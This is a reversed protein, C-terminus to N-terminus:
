VNTERQKGPTRGAGYAVVLLAPVLLCFFWVAQNLTYATVLHQSVLSRRTLGDVINAEIEREQGAHWPYRSAAYLGGFYTKLIQHERFAFTYRWRARGPFLANQAMDLNADRSRIHVRAEHVFPDRSAPYAKIFERFGEAGPYRDIIRAGTDARQRNAQRLEEVTLRSKFSGVEPDVHLHGYEFMADDQDALFKLAPFRESYAKVAAPTNVHCLGLMVALAAATLCLRRLGTADPLGSNARPRIGIAIAVQVLAVGTVNLWIDRIDFYRGPVAWQIVEDLVGVITGALVALLYISNDRVRHAYARFILVGLAGYLIFHVAEEPSGSKLSFVLYGYLSGVAILVAFGFLTRHPYRVYWALGAALLVAVAAASGITFTERGWEDAIHNRMARAFPVILFIM